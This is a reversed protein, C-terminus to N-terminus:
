PSLTRRGRIQPGAVAALAILACVIPWCPVLYRYFGIEVIATILLIGHLALGLAAAVRTMPQLEEPLRRRWLFAVIAAAGIAAGAGYLLRFPLLAIMPVDGAVHLKQHAPNLGSPPRHVETGAKRALREDGPLVPYQSLEVPPHSRIFANAERAEAATPDTDFVALRVYENAVSEVYCLPNARVRQDAIRALYPDVQSGMDLHHRRGLVPIILGFRLPTSYERRLQEQLPPPASDIYRRVDSSAAEVFQADQERFRAGADCYLTHQLVGRALPSTTYASGHVLLQALPTAAWAALAGAGLLALAKARGVAPHAAPALLASGFFLPLLSPRVMVAVCPVGVLWGYGADPKRLVRLLQATWLAVFATSLAESMLFASAFWMGANVVLLLQFAITFAPRRVVQHFSWGLWTLCAALVLMQLPIALTVRGAIVRVLELFAPYGLTRTQDFYLYGPSDGRLPNFSRTLWLTTAGCALTVSAIALFTLRDSKTGM